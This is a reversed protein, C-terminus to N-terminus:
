FLTHGDGAWVSIDHSFMCDRGIILKKGANAHMDLNSEFSSEDGIVVSSNQAHGYVRFLADLFRCKKGIKVTSLPIVNGKLEFTVDFAFRCGDGIEVLANTDMDFNLSKGIHIGKGLEIRSNLGRFVVKKLIGSTGTIRNGYIDSYNGKSLDYNELM